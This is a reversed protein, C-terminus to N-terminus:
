IHEGMGKFPKYESCRIEDGDIYIMDNDPGCGCVGADYELCGECEKGLDWNVHAVIPNRM